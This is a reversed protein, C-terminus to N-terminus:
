LARGRRAALEREVERESLLPGRETRGKALLKALRRGRTSAPTWRGKNRRAAKEAIAELIYKSRGNGAAPLMDLLHEPVKVSITTSTGTM